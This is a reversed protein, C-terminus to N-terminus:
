WSNVTRGEVNMGHSFLTSTYVMQIFGPIALVKLLPFSFVVALAVWMIMQVLGGFFHAYNVRDRKGCWENWEGIHDPPIIQDLKVYQIVQSVVPLVLASTWPSAFEYDWDRLSQNVSELFSGM